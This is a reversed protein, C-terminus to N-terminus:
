PRLELVDAPGLDEERAAAVEDAAIPEFDDPLAEPDDWATIEHNLVAAIEADDLQGGWAPMVGDYSQGQVEMPGEVGDLVAHILYTRGGDADILQPLNGALPPFAGPVGGGEAGHCSACNGDYVAAGDAGDVQAVANGDGGDAGNEGNQPAEDDDAAEQETRQSAATLSLDVGREAVLRMAEGIPIRAGEEGIQELRALDSSAALVTADYQATLPAETRGQPRASALLLLVLLVAVMGFATVLFAARIQAETFLPGQERSPRESM